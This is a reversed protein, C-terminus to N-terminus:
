RRRDKSRRRQNRPFPPSEKETLPAPKAQHAKGTSTNLFVFESDQAAPVTSPLGHFIISEGADNVTLVKALLLDSNWLLKGTRTLAGIQWTTDAKLDPKHLILSSTPTTKLDWVAREGRQLFGANLLRTDGVPQLKERLIELKGRDDIKGEVAYLQRWHQGWPRMVGSPWRSVHNLEEQGLMAYWKLSGPSSTLFDLVMFDTESLWGRPAGESPVHTFGEALSKGPVVNRLKEEDAPSIKGTAADIGLYRLDASKFILKDHLASVKVDKVDDPLVEAYEPNLDRIQKTTLRPALSKADHLQLGRDWLWVGEPLVGIIKVGDLSDFNIQNDVIVRRALDGTSADRSELRYRMYPVMEYITSSRRSGISIVYRYQREEATIYYLRHTDDTKLTWPYGSIIPKRLQTDDFKKHYYYITALLGLVLLSSFVYKIV